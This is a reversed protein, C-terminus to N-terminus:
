SPREARRPRGISRLDAGYVLEDIGAFFAATECMPCPHSTSYMVSGALDGPGLRETADRIATMEAHATPDSRVVVGSRGWGVVVSDLVVVAGYDQDGAAVAEGRLRDALEMAEEPTVIRDDETNTAPIDTGM